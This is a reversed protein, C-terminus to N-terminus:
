PSSRKSSRQYQQKFVRDVAQGGKTDVVAPIANLKGWAARHAGVAVANCESPTLATVDEHMLKLLLDRL